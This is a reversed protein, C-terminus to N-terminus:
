PKSVLSIWSCWTSATFVSAVPRAPNGSRGVQALQGRGSRVLVAVEGHGREASTRRRGAPSGASRTSGNAGAVTTPGWLCLVAVPQGVSGFIPAAVGWSGIIMEGRCVAYGQTRM